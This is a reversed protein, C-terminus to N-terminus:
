RPRNVSIVQKKGDGLKEKEVTEYGNLLPSQLCVKFEPLSQSM